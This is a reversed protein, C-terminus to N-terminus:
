CFAALVQVQIKIRTSYCNCKDKRSILRRCVNKKQKIEYVCNTHVGVTNSKLGYYTLQTDGVYRSLEIMSVHIFTSLNDVQSM